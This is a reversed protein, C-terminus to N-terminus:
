FRRKKILVQHVVDFGFENASHVISIASLTEGEVCSMRMEAADGHM